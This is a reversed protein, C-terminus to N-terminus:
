KYDPVDNLLEQRKQMLLKKVLVMTDLNPSDILRKDIIRIRDDIFNIMSQRNDKTITDPKFLTAKQKCSLFSVLCLIILAVKM